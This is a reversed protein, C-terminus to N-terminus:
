GGKSECGTHAMSALVETVQGRCGSKPCCQPCKSCTPCFSMSKCLFCRQCRKNRDKSCLSKYREKTTARPFLCFSCSQCCSLICKSSKFKIDNSRQTFRASFQRSSGAKCNKSSIERGVKCSSDKLTNSCILYNDNINSTVEQSLSVPISAVDEVVGDEIKALSDGLNISRIEPVPIEVREEKM